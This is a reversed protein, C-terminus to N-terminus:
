KSKESNGYQLLPSCLSTDTNNESNGYNCCNRDNPILTKKEKKRKKLIVMIAVITFM